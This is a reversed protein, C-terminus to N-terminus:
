EGKTKKDIANIIEAIPIENVNDRELYIAKSNTPQWNASTSANFNYKKAYLGIVNQNFASAVWSMGTDGTILM